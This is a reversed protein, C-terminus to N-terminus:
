LLVELSQPTVSNSILVVYRNVAFLFCLGPRTINITNCCSCRVTTAGHVHMLLTRCGGCILQAMEMGACLDVLDEM